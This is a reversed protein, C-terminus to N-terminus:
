RTGKSYKKTLNRAKRKLKDFDPSEKKCFEELEQQANLAIRYKKKTNKERIKTYIMNLEDKIQENPNQNLYLKEYYMALMESEANTKYKTGIKTYAHIAQIYPRINMFATIENEIFPLYLKFGILEKKKFFIPYFGRINMKEEDYYSFRETNEYIYKFIIENYLGLTKFFDIFKTYYNNNM